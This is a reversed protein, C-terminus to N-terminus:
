YLKENGEERKEMEQIIRSPISLIVDIGEEVPKKVIIRSPISLIM